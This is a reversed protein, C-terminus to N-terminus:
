KRWRRLRPKRAPKGRLRADVYRLVDERAYGMGTREFERRAALADELFKRRLEVRIAEEIAEIMFADPTKGAGEVVAAVRERLEAPLSITTTGM